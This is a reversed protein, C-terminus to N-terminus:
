SKSGTLLELLTQPSKRFLTEAAIFRDDEDLQYNRVRTGLEEVRNNPLPQDIYRLAIISAPDFTMKSLKALLDNSNKHRAMSVGEMLLERKDLSIQNNFMRHQIIKFAWQERRSCLLKIANKQVDIIPHDLLKPLFSPTSKVFTNDNHEIMWYDLVALLLHKDNIRYLWDPLPTKKIGMHALARIMSTLLENNNARKLMFFLLDRAQRNNHLAILDVLEHSLGQRSLKSLRSLPIRINRKKAAYSVLDQVIQSSDKIGKNSYFKAKKPSTLILAQYAHARVLPNKSDLYPRVIKAAGQYSSLAIIELAKVINNDNTKYQQKNIKSLWDTITAAIKDPKIVFQRANNNILLQMTQLSREYFADDRANIDFLTALLINLKHYQLRKLAIIAQYKAVVPQNKSKVTDVLDNILGTERIQGISKISEGKVLNNEQQLLSKLPAAARYNEAEGLARAACTQIESNNDDLAHILEAIALPKSLIMAEEENFFYAYADATQCFIKPDRSNLLRLLWRSSNEEEYAQLGQIALLRNEEIPDDLSQILIGLREPLMDLMAIEIARKRIHNEKSSIAEYLLQNSLQHSSKESNASMLWQAARLRHNPNKFLDLKHASKQSKVDIVKLSTSGQSIRLHHNTNVDHFKQVDGNSWQVTLTKIKNEKGLGFHLRKDSSALFSYGGHQIRTFANHETRLTVRAGIADRNGNKGELSLELWNGTDSENILLQGLSNNHSAYVDIDGDNDFDAFSFARNSQIDGFAIGCKMGCPNFIGNGQNLWLEKRQGQTLRAADPDPTFFGGGTIIDLWGDNDADFVGLSISALGVQQYDDFGIDRGIDKYLSSGNNESFQKYVSLPNKQDTGMIIEENGDNNLDGPTIGFTVQATNLQYQATHDSFHGNRQNIFLTNPTTSDNSVLLDPYSDNNADLWQANYGRGNSNEVGAKKSIDEFHLDGINRFLRNAQSDYLTPMFSASILGKFGTSKEYTREGKRLSIYNVIYIDLLGDKDFDAIAASTSWNTDNLGAESSIDTFRGNGNNKYLTNQGRNTLLVDQDGDNDLDASYCGMGWHEDSLGAAKTVDEFQNNGLNRYLRNGHPTQWWHAKGYHRSEGTGGIVLIDVWGDNDYDFVCSGSGLTEDISTLYVDGQLHGSTLNASLTQDKFLVINPKLPQDQKPNNIETRFIVRSSPVSFIALILIAIATAFIFTTAKNLQM